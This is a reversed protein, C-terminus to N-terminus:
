RKDSNSRADPFAERRPLKDHLEERQLDDRDARSRGCPRHSIAEHIVLFSTYHQCRRLPLVHHPAQKHRGAVITRSDLGTLNYPIQMM